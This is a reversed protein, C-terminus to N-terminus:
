LAMPTAKAGVPTPTGTTTPILIASPLTELLIARTSCRSDLVRSSSRNVAEAAQIFYGSKRPHGSECHQPSVGRVGSLISPIRPPEHPRGAGLEQGKGEMPIECCVSLLFSEWPQVLRVKDGGPVSQAVRCAQRVPHREDGYNRQQEQGEAKPGRERSLAPQTDPQQLEPDDNRQNLPANEDDRRPHPM